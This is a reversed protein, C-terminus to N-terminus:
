EFNEIDYVLLHFNDPEMKLEFKAKCNACNFDPADNACTLENCEPCEFHIVGCQPCGGADIEKHKPLYEVEPFLSLQNPNYEEDTQYKVKLKNDLLVYEYECFDMICQQYPIGDILAETYAELEAIIEASLALASPLREHFQIEIGELCKIIDPHFVEKNKGDTYEATNNSVFIIADDLQKYHHKFYDPLSFLIAADATNNKQNHFPAKKKISQDFVKIKVQDSLTIKKCKEFLFEELKKLHEENAKIEESIGELYETKLDNLSSKVYKSIELFLSPNNLKKDLRDLKIKANVKNRKWEEIIIDNVLVCVDDNDSYEMLKALLSFHNNDHFKESKTDYGNALYIWINTDLVLYIMKKSKIIVFTVNDEKFNSRLNFFPRLTPATRM